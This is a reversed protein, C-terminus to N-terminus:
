ESSEGLIEALLQRYKKLNEEYSGAAGVDRASKDESPTKELLWPAYSNLTEESVWRRALLIDVVNMGTVAHDNHVLDFQGKSIVKNDLLVRLLEQDRADFNSQEAAVVLLGSHRSKQWFTRRCSQDLQAASFHDKRGQRYSTWHGRPRM